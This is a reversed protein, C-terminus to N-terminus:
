RTDSPPDQLAGDQWARVQKDIEARAEQPAIGIRAIECLFRQTLVKLSEQRLRQQVAKGPLDLIYTGRGHQTSILESEDLLRYSRAVTNFNVDLEAALQRVTPLQDGPKLEGSLLLGGIQEVIQLYIPMNARFNLQIKGTM